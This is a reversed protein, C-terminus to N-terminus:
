KPRLKAVIADGPGKCEAQHANKTPWNGGSSFGAVILSGDSGVCGARGADNGGGGLFTSYIVRDLNQSFKVIVADDVEVDRIGEGASGGFFTSFALDYPGAGLEGVLFVMLWVAASLLRVKM